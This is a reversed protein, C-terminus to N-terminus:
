KSLGKYLEFGIFILLSIAAIYNGINALSFEKNDRVSKIHDRLSYCPPRTHIEPDSTHRAFEIRADTQIGVIQDLREHLRTEMKEMSTKVQSLESM